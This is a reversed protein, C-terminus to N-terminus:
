RRDSKRYEKLKKKGPSSPGFPRGPVGRAVWRRGRRLGEVRVGRQQRVGDGVERQDVAQHLKGEPPVVDPVPLLDGERVGVVLEGADHEVCCTEGRESRAEHQEKVPLFHVQVM